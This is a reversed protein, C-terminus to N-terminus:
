PTDTVTITFTAGACASCGGGFVVGTFTLHFPSCSDLTPAGMTIGAGTSCSGYSFSYSSFTGGNCAIAFAGSAGGASWALNTWQDIGEGSYGHSLAVSAGNLGCATGGTQTFHAYLTAPIPTSPCCATIFGGGGSGSGSGSGSGTPCSALNSTFTITMAQGACSGGGIGSGLTGTYTITLPLCTTPGAGPGGSSYTLGTVCDAYPTYTNGVFCVGDSWCNTGSNFVGHSRCPSVGAPFSWLWPAKCPDYEGERGDGIGVILVPYTSACASAIPLFSGGSCTLTLQGIPTYGSFTWNAGYITQTFGDLAPCGPCSFKVCLATPSADTCVNCGPRGCCDRVGYVDQGLLQDVSRRGFYTDGVVPTWLTGNVRVPDLWVSEASPWNDSQGVQIRRIAPFRGSFSSLGTCTLWATWDRGPSVQAYDGQIGDAVVVARVLYGTNGKRLKWSNAVTGLSDGPNIGSTGAGGGSGSGSGGAVHECLAVAPLEISAIGDTQTTTLPQDSNFVVGETQGSESPQTVTYIVRNGDSVAGVIRCVGFAPITQGSINRIPIPRVGDLPVPAPPPYNDPM